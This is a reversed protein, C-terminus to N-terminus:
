GGSVSWNATVPGVLNLDSDYGEAHFLIEDDTTIPLVQWPNVVIENVRGPLVIVTTYNTVSDDSNNCYVRWSGVAGPEYLGTASVRGKPDTTSWEEQFPVIEHNAAHGVADIDLWDEASGTWVELSMHIHDLPLFDRSWYLLSMELLVPTSGGNETRLHAKFRIKPIPVLSLNEGNQVASWSVGSDTSYFYEISTNMLLTEERNFIDWSTVNAPTFDATEVVGKRAHYHFSINVDSVSPNSSPDTTVLYVKYQLYQGSPSRISEGSSNRYTSWLSWNGDIIPSLGTRTGIVVWTNPPITSNWSIKGWSVKSSANLVQSYFTGSPFGQSVGFTTVNDLFLTLKSPSTGNTGLRLQFSLGYSRAQGLYRSINLSESRWGASTLNTRSWITQSHFSVSLNTVTLGDFAGLFREFTLEIERWSISIDKLVPTENQSITGLVVRYQIYPAPSSEVLQGSSNTYSSSPKWQEWLDPHSNPDPDYGTRTQILLYTLGPLTTASWHIYADSQDPNYIKVPSLYTGNWEYMRASINLLLTPWETPNPSDSSYFSYTRGTEGGVARLMLGCNPYDGRMWGRVLETVDWEVWGY